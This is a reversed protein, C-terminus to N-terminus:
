KVIDIFREKKNTIYPNKEIVETEVVTVKKQFWRAIFCKKRPELTEKRLSTVLYKESTFETNIAIKGPFELSIACKYWPANVISTDLKVGEKFVTDKLILTDKKSGQSLLYGLKEIEKDKIKLSKRVKNMEQILSDQSANLQNITFTFERNKKELSNNEAVLANYNNSASIYAEKLRKIKNSQIMICGCLVLITALVGAIIYLKTKISM